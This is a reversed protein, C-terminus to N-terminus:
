GGIIYVFIYLAAQKVACQRQLEEDRIYLVIQLLIDYAHYGKKYLFFVGRKVRPETFAVCKVLFGGHRLIMIRDALQM